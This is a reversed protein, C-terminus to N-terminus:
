ALRLIVEYMLELNPVISDTRLYEQASHLNGGIPGCGDFVATKVGSVWNADSVGGTKVYAIPYNLSNAVESVTDMLQRSTETTEMPPMYSLKVVTAHTGKILPCSTLERINRKIRNLEAISEFRVEFVCKASEPVVNTASGGQATGVNISTGKSYDNWKHLETMWHGLEVLANAGKEPNVGSHVSIGEIQVECELIGKRESVFSKGGPLGERGPEFNLCYKAHRALGEIWPISCQAGTEESGNLAICIKIAPHTKMLKQVLYLITVDGAKMDACGPGHVNGEKDISFPRQKATGEPFVTDMHGLFLFDYEDGEYNRFELNCGAENGNEHRFAKFGIPNLRRELFDAVREIGEFYHSGSDINVLKELDDIFLDKNWNEV